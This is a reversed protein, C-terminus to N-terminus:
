KKKMKGGVSPKKPPKRRVLSPSTIRDRQQPKPPKDAVLGAARCLTLFLTVMRPQQGVPKYSRFADRVSTEDDESPDVFSFVDAYTAKLWEGLRQQYEGEPALRIGEFTETPKGDRGVLELIQLTQLTRPILSDSVGARELVESNVPSPLGRTRHRKILELIASPPAYPASKEKTVAM